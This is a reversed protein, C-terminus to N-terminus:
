NDRHSRNAYIYRCPPSLSHEVGLTIESCDHLPHLVVRITQQKLEGFVKATRADASGSEHLEVAPGILGVVATRVTTSEFQSTTETLWSRFKAAVPHASSQVFSALM